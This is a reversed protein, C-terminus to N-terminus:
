AGPATARAWPKEIAIQAAAPFSLCFLPSFLLFILFFRRSKM